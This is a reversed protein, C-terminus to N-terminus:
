PLSTQLLLKMAAFRRIAGQSADQVAFKLTLTKMRGRSCEEEDRLSAPSYGWTKVQPDIACFVGLGRLPSPLKQISCGHHETEFVYKPDYTIGHRELLSIFEEEFTKKKHHEEQTEIYRRVTQIQSQSVTFAGYGAQWNFKTLSKQEENLWKSSKAKIRKVMESVAITPSFGALVHIHDATGGIEILHGNEGRVIGGIYSYLDEKFADEIRKKRYKTSFVVHYTLSTFTSM